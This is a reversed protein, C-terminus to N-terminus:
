PLRYRLVLGDAGVAWGDRGDASMWLGNVARPQVPGRLTTWRSGDWGFFGGLSTAAFIREPSVIRIASIAAGMTVPKQPMPAWGAGDFLLVNGNDGGMIGLQASLIHMDQMPGVTSGPNWRGGDWVYIRGSGSGQVAYGRTLGVMGVATFDRGTNRDDPSPAIWSQGNYYLRNGRLNGVVWGRVGGVDEVATLSSWNDPIGGTNSAVWRGSRMEMVLGNDGALFGRDRSLMHVARLNETSGLQEELLEKGDWYWAEGGAGVMWVNDASTGHVAYLTENPLRAGPASYAVWSGLPAVAATASATVTPSLTPRPSPSPSATATGTASPRATATASPISTASASPVSTSSPSATSSPSPPVTATAPLTAVVPTATSQPVTATATAAVLEVGGVAPMVIRCAGLGSPCRGYPTPSPTISPTTSATPTRTATPQPTPSPESPKRTRTATATPTPPVFAQYVSIGAALSGVWTQTGASAIAAIEADVLGSNDPTYTSWDRGDFLKVGGTPPVIGVGARNTGVWIHGDRDQAIASVRGDDPFVLSQWADNSCGDIPCWNLAADLGYGQLWHFSAEADWGGAWVRGGVRDVHIASLEGGTSPQGKDRNAAYAVLRAGGSRTWASWRAGDWRSVGGGLTSRQLQGSVDQSVEVVSHHVAWLDGTQPDVALRNTGNSGLTQGVPLRARSYLTWTQDKPDLVALGAGESRGDGTGIWIRGDHGAAVAGVEQDPIPSNERNYVKWIRGDWHALGGDMWCAAQAQRDSPCGRSQWITERGGVWVGGDPDVAIQSAADSSPGRELRRIPSGADAQAALGPSIELWPGLGGSSPKFGKVQYITEDDGIRILGPLSPFAADFERRDGMGVPILALGRRVAGTVSGLPTPAGVRPWRRWVRGDYMAVGRHATSVWWEGRQAQFAMDTVRNSPLASDAHRWVQWREDLLTFRRLGDGDGNKDDRTGMWVGSADVALASVLIPSPGVGGDLDLLTWADDVSAEPCDRCASSDGFTNRHDLIAIGLGGGTGDGHGMWIRGDPGAAISWVTNGRLAGPQGQQRPRLYYAQGGQCGKVQLGHRMVLAGHGITGVWMRGAGDAALGTVHAPFCAASDETSAWVAWDDGKRAALGGGTQIWSGQDGPCTEGGCDRDQWVHYPRTGVWLTGDPLTALATINESPLSTFADRVPGGDKTVHFVDTFAGEAPLYRALGGLSFAGPEGTRPNAREPDWRQSFGVWIGERGDSALATVAASPMDTAQRPTIASWRDAGAPLWALGGDTAAWLTGDADRLVANVMNSPLGDQPALYQRYGGEDPQWRLVGGGLSAVWLRDGDPLVQAIRDGNAFSRWSGDDLPGPSSTDSSGLGRAWGGALTVVAAAALAVDRLVRGLRVPIGDATSTSSYTRM